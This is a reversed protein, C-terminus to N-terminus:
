TIHSLKKWVSIHILWSRFFLNAVDTNRKDPLSLLCTTPAHIVPVYPTADRKLVYPTADRKLM